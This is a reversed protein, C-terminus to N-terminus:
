KITEWYIKGRDDFKLVRNEKLDVIHAEYLKMYRPSTTSISYWTCLTATWLLIVLIAMIKWFRDKM